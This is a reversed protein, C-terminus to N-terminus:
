GHIQRWVELLVEQQEAVIALARVADKKRMSKNERFFPRTNVDGINIVVERGAKIVHVHSPEHDDSYIRFIFGDQRLAEAM